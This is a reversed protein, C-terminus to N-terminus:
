KPKQHHKENFVDLGKDLIDSHKENYSSTIEIKM